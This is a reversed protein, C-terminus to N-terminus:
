HCHIHVSADSITTNTSSVENGKEEEEEEESEEIIEEASECSQQLWSTCQGSLVYKNLLSVLLGAFVPEVIAIVMTYM